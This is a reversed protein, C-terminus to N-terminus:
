VTSRRGRKSATRTSKAGDGNQGIAVANGNTQAKEAQGETTKTTGHVRWGFIEIEEPKIVGKKILQLIFPEDEDLSIGNQAALKQLVGVAVATMELNLFGANGAYILIAQNSSLGQREAFGALRLLITAKSKPSIQPTEM